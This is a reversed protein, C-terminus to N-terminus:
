LDLNQDLDEDVVMSQTHLYSLSQRTQVNECVQRLKMVQCHLDENARKKYSQPNAVQFIKIYMYCSFM